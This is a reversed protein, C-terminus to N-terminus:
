PRSCRKRGLARAAVVAITALVVSGPEPAQSAGLMKAVNLSALCAVGDVVGEFLTTTEPEYFAFSDGQRISLTATAPYNSGKHMEAYALGTLEATPAVRRFAVDFDTGLGETPGAVYYSGSVTFSEPFSFTVAPACEWSYATGWLVGTSSSVFTVPGSMALPDVYLSETMEIYTANPANPPSTRILRKGGPQGVLSHDASANLFTGERAVDDIRVTARVEANLDIRGGLSQGNATSHFLSDTPHVRPGYSREVVTARATTGAALLAAAMLICCRM